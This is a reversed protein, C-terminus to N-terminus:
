VSGYRRTCRTCVGSAGYILGFWWPVGLCCIELVRLVERQRPHISVNTYYHNETGHNVRFYWAVLALVDGLAIAGNGLRFKPRVSGRQRYYISKKFFSEISLQIPHLAMEVLQRLLYYFCSLM